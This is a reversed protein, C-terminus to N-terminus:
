PLAQIIGCGHWTKVAYTLVDKVLVVALSTDEAVTVERIRLAEAAGVNRSIAKGFMSDVHVLTNGDVTGYACGGYVNSWVYPM